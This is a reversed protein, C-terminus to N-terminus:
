IESDPSYLYSPSDEKAIRVIVSLEDGPQKDDPIDSSNEVNGVFSTGVPCVKWKGKKTKEEQLVAQLRDKAKLGGMTNRVDVPKNRQYSGAGPRRKAPQPSNKLNKLHKEINGILEGLIRRSVDESIIDSSPFATVRLLYGKETKTLHYWVPAAFRPYIKKLNGHVKRPLGLAAKDSKGKSGEATEKLALGLRDLVTWEDFCNVTIERNLFNEWSYPVPKTIQKHPVGFETSFNEAIRRCEDLSYSKDWQLSGFGKRSRSGVGGYRCLLSLSARAQQLIEEKTFHGSYSGASIELERPNNRISLEVKWRNEPFCYPRCKRKSGRGEDMGYALYLLGSNREDIQHDRAFNRDLSFGDKYQFVEVKNKTSSYVRTKIWGSEETSGWISDEIARLEKSPFYSRYLTRWWWRLMGRLSSSRLTTDDVNLPFAGGFFGPTALKIEIADESIEGDTFWGYGGTTKAGIGHEVLGRKLWEAAKDLDEKKHSNGIKKLQFLFEAGKEVTMFFSPIPNTYDNGGHPNLIDVSLRWSNQSPFASLFAIRGRQEGTGFVREMQDQISEKDEEGANKLDTWATHRAIGKLSTGPIYPCNFHRHLALGANELIGTSMNVIMRSGLNLKVSYDSSVHEFPHSFRQSLSAVAQLQDKKNEKGLFLFKNYRLSASELRELKPGLLRGIERSFTPTDTSLRNM